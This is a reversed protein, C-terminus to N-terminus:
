IHNDNNNDEGGCSNNSHILGNKIYDNMKKIIGKNHNEIKNQEENNNSLQHAIM